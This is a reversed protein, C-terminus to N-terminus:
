GSEVRAFDVMAQGGQEDFEDVHARLPPEEGEGGILLDWRVTECHAIAAEAREAARRAPRQLTWGLRATLLRWVSAACLREVM